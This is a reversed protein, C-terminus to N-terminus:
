VLWYKRGTKKKELTEVKKKIREVSPSKKLMKKRNKKNERASERWYLRLGAVKNESGLVNEWGKNASKRPKKGRM